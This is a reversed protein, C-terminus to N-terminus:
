VSMENVVMKDGRDCWFFLWDFMKRLFTIKDQHYFGCAIVEIYYMPEMLRPTAMLFASYAVRRATPIIQGSGRHLPEPAIRADVIKFKVNRIPEDCLPGERAGWQFRDLICLVM